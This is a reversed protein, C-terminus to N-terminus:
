TMFDTVESTMRAQALKVVYIRWVQSAHVGVGAGSSKM